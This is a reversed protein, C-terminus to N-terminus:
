PKVDGRKIAEAVELRHVPVHKPADIELRVESSNLRNITVRVDPGIVVSEGLKRTLILAM